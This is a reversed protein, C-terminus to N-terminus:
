SVKQKIPTGITSQASDPHNLREWEERQIAMLLFTSGDRIVKGCESFGCKKFCKQARINWTLTTLYIKELNIKEFIHQLLTNVVEAGYGQNWYDRNGIMIGLEAKREAQNVNYYVCNGIHQGDLTDVGFEHRNACPYCLEFTYESLYQQYSMNLTVAADLKSLEADTQWIYDEKADSLRKPRIRIRRGAAIESM